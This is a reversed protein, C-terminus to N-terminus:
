RPRLLLAAMDRADAETVGMDPMRTGPVVSPPDQLWRVLTLPRNPAEGAIYSRRDFDALTPATRGAASPVDPIAHCSGCQYHTMLRKGREADAGALPGGPEPANGSRGCGALAAGALLVAGATAAFAPRDPMALQLVLKTGM